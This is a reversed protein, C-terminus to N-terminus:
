SVFMGLVMFWILTEEKKLQNTLYKALSLFASGTCWEMGWAELLILPLAQATSNVSEPLPAAVTPTLLGM